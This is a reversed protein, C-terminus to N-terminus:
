RRLINKKEHVNIIEDNQNSISKGTKETCLFFLDVDAIYIMTKLNNKALKKKAQLVDKYSSFSERSKLDFDDVVNIKFNTKTEFSCDIFKDKIGIYIKKNKVVMDKQSELGIRITQNEAFIFKTQYLFISIFICM